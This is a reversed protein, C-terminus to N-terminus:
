GTQRAMEELIMWSRRKSPLWPFPGPTNQKGHAQFSMRKTHYVPAGEGFIRNENETLLPARNVCGVFKVGSHALPDVLARRLVSSESGRFAASAASCVASSWVVM